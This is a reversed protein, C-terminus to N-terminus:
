KRLDQGDEGIGLGQLQQGSQEQSPGETNKNNTPMGDMDVGPTDFDLVDDYDNFFNAPGKSDL